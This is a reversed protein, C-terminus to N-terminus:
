NKMKMMSIYNKWIMIKSLLWGITLKVNGKFNDYPSIERVTIYMTNKITQRLFIARNNHTIIKSNNNEVKTTPNINLSDLFIKLLYFNKWLLLHM